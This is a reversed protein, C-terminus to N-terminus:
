KPKIKNLSSQYYNYMSGIQINCEKITKMLNISYTTLATERQIIDMRMYEEESFHPPPTLVPKFYEKPIEVVITEYETVTEKVIKPGCGVLIFSCIIILFIKNM